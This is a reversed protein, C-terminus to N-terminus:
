PATQVAKDLLLYNRGRFETVTGTVRFLVDRGAAAAANELLMLTGNPLLVMPPDAMAAGDSQFAFEDWGDRRVLRGLRDVLLTGERILPSQPAGPAVANAGGTADYVPAAGPKPIPRLPQPIPRDADPLLNDFADDVSAAPRTAPRTSPATDPQAAALAALLGLPIAALPWRTM